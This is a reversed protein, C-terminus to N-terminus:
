YTVKKVVGLKDSVEISFSKIGKLNYVQAFEGRVSQIENHILNDKEDFIYIYVDEPVPSCISLMYKNDEALKRVHILKEVRGAKYNVKEVTKGNDDEVKVTYQGEPLGQFNYPRLFGDVKNMREDFLTNGKEDIISVKVNGLRESKYYVKYLTSGINNTVAVSSGKVPGAIGRAFVLTCLLVGTLFLSNFKKM